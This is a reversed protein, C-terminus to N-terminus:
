VNETASFVEEYTSEFKDKQVLWKNKSDEPDIVLYHGGYTAQLARGELTNVYPVREENIGDEDGAEFLKAKVPIPKKIFTRM